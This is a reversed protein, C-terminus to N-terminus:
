KKEGGAAVNGNIFVLEVRSMFDLPYGDTVVLDADKGVTLTGVRDGIGAIEAANKTIAKLAEEAPLGAKVAM